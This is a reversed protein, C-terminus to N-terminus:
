KPQVFNQIMLSFAMSAFCNTIKKLLFFLYFLTPSMSPGHSVPGSPLGYLAIEGWCFWFGGEEM